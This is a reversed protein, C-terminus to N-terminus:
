ATPGHPLKGTVQASASEIVAQQEERCYMHKLCYRTVVASIRALRLKSVHLLQLQRPSRPSLLPLRLAIRAEALKPNSIVAAAHPGTGCM